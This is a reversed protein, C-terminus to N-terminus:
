SFKTLLATKIESMVPSWDNLSETVFVQATPYWPYNAQGLKLWTSPTSLVWTKVGCAAAINTTANSPGLVLDCASCLAALDDLDNKLDIGPPTHLTAVAIAQEAATDGYQLNVFTLGDLALLKQWQAFPAFYRDRLANAKLSKWLLGIKPKAGLTALHAQWHALRDLSPRLFTNDAPFDAITTRKVPLLDGMLGYLDYDGTALDPFDRIIRGDVTRTRHAVVEAKPFSRRFLPVLRPEVAIGLSALDPAIDPLLSAFMVEDGLGQEASLFLRKHSLSTGTEYRPLDLDYHVEGQAGRKHRAAYWRWGNALDGLALYAQAATIAASTRNDPDDFGEACAVVEALGERTQGCELLACGHYFRAHLSHPALRLAETFFVLATDNDGQASLVTGLAEWLSPEGPHDALLSKLLDIAEDFRSQERLTEAYAKLTPIDHRGQTILHAYFKEAMDWMGLRFALRALHGAIDLSQPQDALAHQWADLAAPLDRADECALARQSWTQLSPSAAM